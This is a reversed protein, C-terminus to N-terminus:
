TTPRVAPCRSIRAPESTASSRTATARRSGGHQREAHVHQGTNRIPSNITRSRTTTSHWRVRRPRDPPRLLADPHRVTFQNPSLAVRTPERPVDQRRRRRDSARRQAAHLHPPRRHVAAPTGTMRFYSTGDFAAIDNVTYTAGDTFTSRPVAGLRLARVARPDVRRRRPRHQVDNAATSSRATNSFQTCSATASWADHQQDPLRHQRHHGHRRQARHHRHLQPRRDLDHLHLGVDDASVDRRQRRDAREAHRASLRLERDRRCQGAHHQVPRLGDRGDLSGAKLTITYQVGNLVFQTNNATMPYVNGGGIVTNPQVNTNIIYVAGNISFQYPNIPLTQRNGTVSVYAGNADQDFTYFNGGLTFMQPATMLAYSAPSGTTSAAYPFMPQRQGHLRRGVYGIVYGYGSNSPSTLGTQLPVTTHAQARRSPSKASSRTTAYVAPGIVGLVISNLRGPHQVCRTTAVVALGDRDSFPTLTIPSPAEDGAPQTSRPTTVTYVGGQMPNFTFTTRDVTVHTNDPGFLYSKGGVVLTYRSTVGDRLTTSLNVIYTNGNLTFKPM